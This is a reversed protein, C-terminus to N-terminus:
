KEGAMRKLAAIAEEPFSGNGPSIPGLDKALAKIIEVRTGNQLTKGANDILDVKATDDGGKLGRLYYRAAKEPDFVGTTRSDYVQGLSTAALASDAAVAKELWLLGKKM